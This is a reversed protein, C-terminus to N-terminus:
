SREIKRSRALARGVSLRNAPRTSGRDCQLSLRLSAAARMM